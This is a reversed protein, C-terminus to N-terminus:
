SLYKFLGYVILAAVGVGTVTQNQTYAGYVATLGGGALFVTELPDKEARAIARRKINGYSYRAM